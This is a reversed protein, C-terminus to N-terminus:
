AKWDPTMMKEEVEDIEEKIRRQEEPDDTSRLNDILIERIKILTENM